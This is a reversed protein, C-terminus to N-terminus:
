FMEQSIQYSESNANPTTKKLAYLSNGLLKRIHNKDSIKEIKKM